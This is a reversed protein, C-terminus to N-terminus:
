IATEGRIEAIILDISAICAIRANLIGQNYISDGNRTDNEIRTKEDELEMIIQGDSTGRERAVAVADKYKDYTTQKDGVKEAVKKRRITDQIYRMHPKM